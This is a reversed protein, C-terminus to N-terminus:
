RQQVASNREVLSEFSVRLEAFVKGHLEPRLVIGAIIKRFDSKIVRFKALLGTLQNKQNFVFNRGRYRGRSVWGGAAGSGGPAAIKFERNKIASKSAESRQFGDKGACVGQHLKYSRNGCLFVV